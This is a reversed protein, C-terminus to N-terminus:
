EKISNASMQATRSWRKLTELPTQWPDVAVWGLGAEPFERGGSEPGLRFALTSTGMAVAFHIGNGATLVPVGFRGGYCPPCLSQLRECLDPHTHLQWGDLDYLDGTGKVGQKELLRHLAANQPPIAAVATM